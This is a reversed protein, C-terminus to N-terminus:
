TFRLFDITMQSISIEYREVLNHHRSYLKQLSSKLRPAVYGQKPLKQTLLQARVLFDSYQVCARSYRVLQSIYVGYAPSALINSLIVVHRNLKVSMKMESLTYCINLQWGLM